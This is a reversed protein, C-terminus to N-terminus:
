KGLYKGAVTFKNGDQMIFNGAGSHISHAKLKDFVPLEPGEEKKVVKKPTAKKVEKVKGIVKTTM